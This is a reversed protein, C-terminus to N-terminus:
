KQPESEGHPSTRHKNQGPASHQGGSRRTAPSAWPHNRQLSSFSCHKGTARNTGGQGMWKSQRVPALWVGCAQTGKSGRAGEQTSEWSHTHNWNEHAQRRDGGPTEKGREGTLVEREWFRHKLSFLKKVFPTKSSFKSVKLAQFYTKGICNISVKDSFPKRYLFVKM